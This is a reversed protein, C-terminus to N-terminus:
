VNVAIAEIEVLGNKPLSAVEVCARAPAAENFYDAYIQNVTAFDSMNKLFITTKVVHHKEMNAAKLIADLNVLSQKTQNEIGEAMEGTFPRLGLQGSIYLTGNVYMAQIYPGVAAPAQDTYIIKREM